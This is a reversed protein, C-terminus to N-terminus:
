IICKVYLIKRDGFQGRKCRFCVKKTHCSDPFSCCWQTNGMQPAWL